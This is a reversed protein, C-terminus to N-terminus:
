QAKPGPRVIATARAADQRGVILDCGCMRCNFARQGPRNPVDLASIATVPHPCMIGWEALLDIYAGDFISEDAPDTWNLTRVRVDKGVERQLFDKEAADLDALILLPGRRGSQVYKLRHLELRLPTGKRSSM